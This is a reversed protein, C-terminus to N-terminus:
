VMNLLSKDDEYLMRPGYIHISFTTSLLINCQNYGYADAPHPLAPCKGGGQTGWSILKMETILKSPVIVLM